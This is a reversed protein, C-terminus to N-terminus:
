SISRLKWTEVPDATLANLRWCAGWATRLSVCLPDWKLVARQSHGESTHPPDVSFLHAFFSNPHEQFGWSFIAAFWWFAPPGTAARMQLVRPNYLGHYADLIAHCLNIRGVQM